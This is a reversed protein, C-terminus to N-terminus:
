PFKGKKKEYTIRVNACAQSSMQFFSNGLIVGRNDSILFCFM